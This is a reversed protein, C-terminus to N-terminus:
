AGAFLHAAGRDRGGVRAARAPDVAFLRASNLVLFPRLRKGGAFTAYRMAEQVRAHLGQPRPLVRDLTEDVMKSAAALAQPLIRGHPPHAAM